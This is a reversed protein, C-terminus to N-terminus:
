RIRSEAAASRRTRMQTVLYALAGLAFLVGALLMLIPLALASSPSREGSPGVVMSNSGSARPQEAPISGGVGTVRSQAAFSAQQQASPIARGQLALRSAPPASVNGAFSGTIAATTDDANSRDGVPTGKDTSSGSAASPSKPNEQPITVRLVDRAPTGPVLQRTSTLYQTATITYHGAEAEEPVTFSFSITGDGAPSGSWVVDGSLSNFHVAVEGAADTANFGEGSGQVVQGPLVAAKDDLIISASATCAYATAAAALMGGFLMTGVLMVKKM